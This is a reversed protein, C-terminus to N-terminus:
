TDVYANSESEAEISNWTLAEWKEREWKVYINQCKIESSYWIYINICGFDIKELKLESENTAFLNLFLMLM